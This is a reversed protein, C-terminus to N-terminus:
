AIDRVEAEARYVSEHMSPPKVPHKSNSTDLLM